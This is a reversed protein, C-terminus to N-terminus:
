WSERARLVAKKGPLRWLIIFGVLKGGVGQFAGQRERLMRLDLPAPALGGDAYAFSEKM